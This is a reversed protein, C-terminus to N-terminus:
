NSAQFLKTLSKKDIDRNDRGRKEKEKKKLFSKELGCGLKVAYFAIPL